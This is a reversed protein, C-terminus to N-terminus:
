FKKHKTWQKITLKHSKFLFRLIKKRYIQNFFQACTLCPTYPTSFKISFIISSQSCNSLQCNYEFLANLPEVGFNACNLATSQAFPYDLPFEFFLHKFENQFISLKFNVWLQLVWASIETSEVRNAIKILSSKQQRIEIRTCHSYKFQILAFM